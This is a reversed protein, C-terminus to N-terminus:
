GTRTFLDGETTRVVRITTGTLRSLLAEDMVEGIEGYYAHGNLLYVAGSLVPLLSNLDHSVVLITVRRQAKLEGILEVIESQGRVDLHALPEDLLLLEPEDVLAQAIVLRRQQGGSLEGMRRDAFGVAATAELAADVAQRDAAALPRVGWRSGGRGFAVLDVGRVAHSVVSLYDQAAYGIRRNGRRPSQGLVRVDGSAPRLLGLLLQLFTTKGSGNPGIVIAVSEQPIAFSAGSWVTLGGRVAAVDCMEVALTEPATM